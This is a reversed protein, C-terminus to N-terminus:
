ILYGALLELDVYLMSILNSGRDWASVHMLKFCGAALGPQM